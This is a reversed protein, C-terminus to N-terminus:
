LPDSTSGPCWHVLCHRAAEYLTVPLALVGTIGVWHLVPTTLGGFGITNLSVRQSGRGLSQRM